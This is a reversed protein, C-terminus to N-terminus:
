NLSSFAKKLEDKTHIGMLRSIEKGEKFLILTPIGKIKYKEFLVKRELRNLQPGISYYKFGTSEALADKLHPKLKKCSGCWSTSFHLVINEKNSIDDKIHSNIGVFVLYYAALSSLGLVFIISIIIKKSLSM